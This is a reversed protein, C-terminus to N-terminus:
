VASWGHLYWKGSCSEGKTVPCHKYPRYPHSPQQKKIPYDMVHGQSKSIQCKNIKKKAIKKKDFIFDKKRITFLSVHM